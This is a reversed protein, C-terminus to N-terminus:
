LSVIPNGRQSDAMKEVKANSLTYYPGKDGEFYKTLKGTVRIWPHDAFKDTSKPTYAPYDATNAATFEFGCMSGDNGCCGPGQRYVYYYKKGGNSTFDEYTFMGDIQIVKGLYKDSNTYIDNIFTVYTSEKLVVDPTLQAAATTTTKSSGSKGCASFSFLTVLSLVVCLVKKM